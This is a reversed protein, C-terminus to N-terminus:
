WDGGPFRGPEMFKECKELGAAITFAFKCLRAPDKCGMAAGGDLPRNFCCVPLGIVSVHVEVQEEIESDL